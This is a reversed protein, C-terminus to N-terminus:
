CRQLIHFTYKITPDQNIVWLKKTSKLKIKCVLLIQCSFLLYNRFFNYLHSSQGARRFNWRLIMSFGPCIWFSFTKWSPDLDQSVSTLYVYGTYRRWGKGELFIDGIKKLPTPSTCYLSSLFLLLSILLLMLVLYLFMKRKRTSVSIQPTQDWLHSGAQRFQLVLSTTLWFRVVIFM